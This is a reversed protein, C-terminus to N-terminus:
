LTTLEGRTSHQIATAMEEGMLSTSQEWLLAVGGYVSYRRATYDQTMFLHHLVVAHAWDPSNRNSEEPYEPRSSVGAEVVGSVWGGWRWHADWVGSWSEPCLGPVSPPPADPFWLWWVLCIRIDPVLSCGPIGIESHLSISETVPVAHTLSCVIRSWRWTIYTLMCFTSVIVYSKLSFFPHFCHRDTGSLHNWPKQKM